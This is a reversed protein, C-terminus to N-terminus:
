DNLIIHPALKELTKPGIGKIKTIEDVSKFAGYQERFAIILDATVPGVGNLKKLTKKDATNINIQLYAEKEKEKEKDIDIEEEKETQREAGRNKTSSKGSEAEAMKYEQDGASNMQSEEKTLNEKEPYYRESLLQDKTAALSAKREEFSAKLEAPIEHQRPSRFMLYLAGALTGVALFLILRSESKSMGLRDTLFYLKQKWYVKRTRNKGFLGM